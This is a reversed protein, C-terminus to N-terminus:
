EHYFVQRLNEHTVTDENSLLSSYQSRVAHFDGPTLRTFTKLESMLESPLETSCLSKLLSNYLALVQPIGSYDFKIKYSFRRVSAQDFENIRNTTCICFCKCEELNVIFENVFSVEWSRVAMDRSYLFTDAEDIVLVAGESEANRFARTIRKETEGVLCNQLDSARQIFCERDLEHAINRALATKGTGPPGYLM